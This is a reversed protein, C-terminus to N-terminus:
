IGADKVSFYLVRGVFGKGVQFVLAIKVEPSDRLVELQKPTLSVVKAEVGGENTKFDPEGQGGNVRVPELGRRLLDQFVVEESPTLGVARSGRRKRRCERCDPTLGSLYARSKLFADRPKSEGCTRCKFEQQQRLRQILKWREEIFPETLKKRRDREM